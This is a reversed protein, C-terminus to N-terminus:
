SKGAEPLTFVFVAGGTPNAEHWLSGGHAEIISKCISLGIGMGASKTTVFPQFLKDLVDQALGPGTDSVTVRIFGNIDGSTEITLERKDSSAMAEIANRTLNVLVQQIQVRDVSVPPLQRALKLTTRVRQEKTGVLALASAEEILRNVNERRAEVTGKEVFSRLRRIVQGARAAQAVVKEMIDEVKPRGAGADRDLLHRMAQVYNMIATLPQNLEHALSASLQGMDSLRSVHLLEIQLESMRREAEQRRTIDHVFGTFMRRGGVIAEGVALEMPFTEGDNRRGRVVRKFGIIRREGTRLYRAIYGDHQEHYPSPMLYSINRGIVEAAKYGFIHEASASFSEILGQEDITIIGDPSTDIISRLVSERERTAHESSAREAMAATMLLASMVILGLYAQIWLVGNAASGANGLLAVHVDEVPGQGHTTGWVAIVTVLLLLTTVEVPTRRAGAWVFFPVLAFAAILPPDHMGWLELFVSTSLFLVLAFLLSSEIIAPMHMRDPLKLRWAMIAPAVLVIGFLMAAAWVVWVKWFPTGFSAHILAAGISASLAASVVSSAFLACLPRLGDLPSRWAAYREYIRAGVLGILVDAVSLAINFVYGRGALWNVLLTALLFLGALPLRDRGPV